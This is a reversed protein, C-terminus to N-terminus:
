VEIIEIPINLNTGIENQIKPKLPKYKENLYIKSKIMIICNDKNTDMFIEIKEPPAGLDKLKTEIIKKLNNTALKTVQSDINELLKSHPLSSSNELFKKFKLNSNKSKTALPSILSCLTFLTIVTHITKKIKGSPLLLDLIVCIMCTIIVLSSFKRVNEM